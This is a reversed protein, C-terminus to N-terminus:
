SVILEFRITNGESRRYRVDRGLSHAVSTLRRKV